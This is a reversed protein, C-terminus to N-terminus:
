LHGVAVGLTAADVCCMLYHSAASLHICTEPLVFKQPKPKRTCAVMKKWSVSSELVKILVLRCTVEVTRYNATLIVGEGHFICRMESFFLGTVRKSLVFINNFFNIRTIHSCCCLWLANIPEWFTRFPAKFVSWGIHQRASKIKEFEREEREGFNFKLM